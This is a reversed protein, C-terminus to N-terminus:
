NMFGTPYTSNDSASDTWTKFFIAVTVFLWSNILLYVYFAV